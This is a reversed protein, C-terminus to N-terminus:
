KKGGDVTWMPSDKMNDSLKATTRELRSALTKIIKAAIEPQERMLDEMPHSLVKALRAGNKVKVTCTRPKNLIDAMEGFITGPFMLTTLLNNDKYVEVAGSLLIYFFGGPDGQKLVTAGHPFDIEENPM